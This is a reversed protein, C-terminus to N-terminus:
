FFHNVGVSVGTQGAQATAPIMTGRYTTRDVGLYLDTHKSLSYVASLIATNRRGSAGATENRTRYYAGTLSFASTFRYSLGSLVYKNTTDLAATEQTEDAYGLALRWPGSMYAGGLTYHTYDRFAAGVLNKRKTVAAGGQFPGASYSFGAAQAAGNSVSGAQEGLAYEARVTLAGFNGIYQVANNNRTGATMAVALAIGPYKFGLPEYGALTKFAVTYQRGLDLSGWAGGVGVAATRQFLTGAPTDLAGTGTNFGSELTFHANMGGGLDEVGKFGIRNANFTGNSSVSLRDNGAADVNTLHRVGGDFSGYIVIGSQAHAAGSLAALVALCCIKRNM